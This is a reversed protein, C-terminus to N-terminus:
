QLRNSAAGSLKWPRVGEEPALFFHKVLFVDQHEPSLAISM